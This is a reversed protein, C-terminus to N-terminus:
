KEQSQAKSQERILQHLNRSSSGEVAKVAIDQVKQYAKELQQSLHAIQQNQEKVTKELSEIRTTLVKREGDFEKTQLEVKNKTELNIREATEKIARNVAAAMEEPLSGVQKRLGELEMEKAAVQREREALEKEVYEKKERLEKELKFKEDEFKDRALQQERKFAYLYEDKERQRRNKEETERTTTQTEYDKGEREWEARTIEIERTLEEKRKAIDLEFEQRKRNQSEILAALTEASREIEFLEELEKEKVEIAKHISKFTNVEGEMRESIEALMRGIELRLNSIGKEVGETSLSDAIAVVEKAKKGEIKREPKLEAEKKEKLEKLLAHYADLMEKKTNSMTLRKSQTTQDDAM